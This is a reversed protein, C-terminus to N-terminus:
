EAPMMATRTGGSRVSLMLLAATVGLAIFSYFMLQYGGTRDYVEGSYRVAVASIVAICFMIMGNGTGFSRPGFRDALLALYLPMTSGSALGIFACAFLLMPYSHAFLMVICAVPMLLYLGTLALVRDIRDAFAAVLLKGSIASLGIASILSAAKTTSFGIERGIPVLSVMLAMFIAQTFATSLAIGWFHPQALLQRQSLQVGQVAVSPGTTEPAAAKSGPEHDGPGPENRVLPLVVTVMGAVLVGTAILTHRWGITDVLWAVPPAVFITAASMGMMTIAMARGRHVSFWRAILAPSTLNGIGTMGLGVPVILMAASLWLNRSLGLVILSGGLAWASVAMILRAPYRDVLRGLILSAVAAGANMLILGTNMNARSLGFEQSAPLVYIGFANVTAGTTVMLAVMCIAVMYWGYYIGGAPKGASTAGDGSM